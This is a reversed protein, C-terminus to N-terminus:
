RCPRRKRVRVRRLPSSMPSGAGWRDLGPELQRFVIEQGVLWQTLRDQARVDLDPVGPTPRPPHVGAIKLRIGGELTLELRENVSVVRGRTGGEDPCLGAAAQVEVPRALVVLAASFVIALRMDTFSRFRLHPRTSGGGLARGLKLIRWLELGIAFSGSARQRQRLDPNARSSMM